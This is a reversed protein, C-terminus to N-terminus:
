GPPRQTPSWWARPTRSARYEDGHDHLGREHGARGVGARDEHDGRRGVRHGGGHGHRHQQDAASRHHGGAGDGHGHQGAPRDRLGRDAHDRRVDRPWGRRPHRDHRHRGHRVGGRVVLGRHGHLDLDRGHVGARFHRDGDRRDRHEARRQHGGADLDDARRRRGHAREADQHDRPRRRAAADGLRLRQREAPESRGAREGPPDRHQDGAGLATVRVTISLTQTATAPMDGVTWLGSASDYTGQSATASVFAVSAPLVDSITVSTAASPGLNTVAITYTMLGGVAPAADSVAKTVRLDAAASANVSAADSNNLPDPDAETQATVAANNVLAGTADVRAVLTLTAVAPAALSGVTWVGGAYTGQSPTPTILTLGAPLADTIVVGTAPSPGRNIARVTFTVTEGVLVESRDVNKVVLVDAAPATSTITGGSDNNTNPDPENQGTKVAVNTIAGPSTATATIVLQAQGGLALAGVTWVGTGADYVGQTPADSVYQFGAPLM